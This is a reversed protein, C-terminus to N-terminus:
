APPRSLPESRLALLRRCLRLSSGRTDLLGTSPSQRRSLYLPPSTSLSLLRGALLPPRRAVLPFDCSRPPAALSSSHRAPPRAPNIPPNGYKLLAASALRGGVALRKKRASVAPFAFKSHSAPTAQCHPLYLTFLLNPHFSLDLVFSGTSSVKLLQSGRKSARATGQVGGPRRSTGHQTGIIYQEARSTANARWPAWRRTGCCPLGPGPERGLRRRNRNRPAGKPGIIVMEEIEERQASLDLDSRGDVISPHRESQRSGQRMGNACVSTTWTM